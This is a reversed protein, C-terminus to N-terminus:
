GEDIYYRSMSSEFDFGGSQVQVAEGNKHQRSNVYLSWKRSDQMMKMADTDCKGYDMAGGYGNSLFCGFNCM